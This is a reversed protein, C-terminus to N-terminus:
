PHKKTETTLTEYNIYGCVAKVHTFLKRLYEKREATEKDSAMTKEYDELGEDLFFDLLSEKVNYLTNANEEIKHRLITQVLRHISISKENVKILCYDLLAMKVEDYQHESVGRKKLYRLLIEELIYAGDLFACANLLDAANTNRM